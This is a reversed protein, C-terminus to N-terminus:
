RRNVQIVNGNSDRTVEAEAGSRTRVRTVTNGQSDTRKGLIPLNGLVGSTTQNVVKGTGDLTQNVLNGTGDLTTRVTQGLANVTEDLVSDKGLATKGVEGVTDVANNGVDGVTGILKELIEPNRDITTLTRDIIRAVNDLHVKLQAQAKVGKISLAVKDIGVDAGATLKLLNALRADLSVHADLNDVELDIQEVSLNPIDLYVDPEGMRTTAIDGTGYSPQYNRSSSVNSSTGLSANGSSTAPTQSRTNANISASSDGVAANANGALLLTAALTVGTLFQATQKM